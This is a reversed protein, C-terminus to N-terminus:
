LFPELIVKQTESTVHKQAYIIEVQASWASISFMFEAQCGNVTRIGGKFLSPKQSLPFCKLKIEKGKFCGFKESGPGLTYYQIDVIKEQRHLCALRTFADRGVQSPCM